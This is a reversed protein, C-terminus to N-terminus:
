DESAKKNDALIQNDMADLIFQNLSIKMKEAHDSYKQRNGKLMRITITDYKKKNYKANAALIQQKKLKGQCDPCLTQNGGTYVFETGCTECNITAGVTRDSDYDYKIFRCRPCYKMNATGKFSANCKKCKLDLLEVM